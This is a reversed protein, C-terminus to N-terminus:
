EWLSSPYVMWHCLGWPLLWFIQPHKYLQGHEFKWPFFGRVLRLSHLKHYSPWARNSLRCIQTKNCWLTGSTGSSSEYLLSCPVTWTARCPSSVRNLQSSREKNVLLLRGESQVSRGPQVVDPPLLLCEQLCRSEWRAVWSRHAEDIIWLQTDPSDCLTSLHWSLINLTNM